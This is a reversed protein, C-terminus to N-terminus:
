PTKLFLLKRSKLDSYLQLTNNEQYKSVYIVSEWQKYQPFIHSLINQNSRILQDNFIVKSREPYIAMYLINAEVLDQFFHSGYSLEPTMGASAYSIEGLVKINSIESFQVPIGLSPTTTGWRGPGLLAIVAEKDEGLKENMRGIIRAVQYRDQETLDAYTEPIVYIVYDIAYLVNSGMFSHNLKLVVNSIDINQPISVQDNNKISQLPRCQLINIVLSLDTDKNITFEIDVPYDYASEIQKMIQQLDAAVPADSFIKRFNICWSKKNKMGIERLRKSENWDIDAVDQLQYLKAQNAIESINITVLANKSMSLIDIYQQTYRNDSEDQSIASLQPQDLAILRPYDGEVRDVARTGLGYVLRIVGADPRMKSHWTYLNVSHGVGAMLPFFSAGRNVGSVRQVLLAMQEDKDALGRKKRYALASEDMMSAYVQRVANEFLEYRKEPSGQNVCFVSEYKGAFANGYDDELLSSSRVIIPSQGYYELMQNFQDRIFAPFEGQLLKEKLEAAKKFFGKESKQEMRLKWCDNHVIYTYFLDSGIYFSDHPELKLNVKHQENNQSGSENFLPQVIKRALLMGAAKGGIKGTGIQRGQINLLDELSFWKNALESIRGESGILLSNLRSFYHESDSSQEAENFLKDWYDIQRAAINHSQYNRSFLYAAEGSSSVPNSEEQDVRHPLFMTPSYRQWVKLPHLYDQQNLCYFDLLLQTTERIRAITAYAHRDRKLAFYAITDLEFLYPCTIRFFNGIMLDSSWEELLDSLCDFIYFVRYGLQKIIEYIQSTFHEFGKDADITYIKVTGAFHTQNIVPEHRAYRFYVITRSDSIAQKCFSRALRLYDDIESVQWVVNDGLRLGDIVQDIGKEGTSIHNSM